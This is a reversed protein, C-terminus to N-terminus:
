KLRDALLGISIAYANSCNYDLIAQYNRYVLFHRQRGRVLAATVNAAPLAQGGPLTVGLQAWRSLPQWVTMERRARCGTRQMAVSRDIRTMAARPIRVERGWREDEVWGSQKLYNAMSAFVDPESTWIDARGDGDFDVAYKLYSSPMFQPQGMAGAWSGKLEGIPVLGRDLIRLAEFLESRFLAPRRPDYALTALASIIPRAGTFQGFNSEAAWISIMVPGPVGYRGRVRDLLAAHEVALARAKAVIKPTLREALYADLSQTQEPQMRDRAVIVPEPALGTLALDVTAQSIGRSLAEARLAALWEDFGPSAPTNQPAAHLLLPPLSFALLLLGAV